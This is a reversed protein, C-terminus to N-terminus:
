RDAREHASRSEGLYIKMERVAQRIWSTVTQETREYRHGLEAASEGAVFRSVLVDRLHPSLRELASDIDMRLVIQDEPPLADPETVVDMLSVPQDDNGDTADLSEIRADSLAGARRASRNQDRWLNTAITTIYAHFNGDPKLTARARLVRLWAEQALDSAAERNLTLMQCRSFLPKWYRAVLADLASEDSPERRIANILWADPWGAQPSERHVGLGTLSNSTLDTQNQIDMLRLRNITSDVAVFTETRFGMQANM